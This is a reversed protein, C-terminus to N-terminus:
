HGMCFSQSKLRPELKQPKYKAKIVEMDGVQVDVEQLDKRLLLLSYWILVLTNDFVHEVHHCPSIWVRRDMPHHIQQIWLGLCEQQCYHYRLHLRCCTQLQRRCLHERSSPTCHSSHRRLHLRHYCYGLPQMLMPHGTDNSVHYRVRWDWKYEYGFAVIFNGLISILVYPIMAPLRMEPERIGRNRKTARMSIWDSLPGNTALGIFAGVLIAFNTFGISQSTWNYPPAAFNQSQTLNITLFCSASWSVVFAALEIIPYIHLKWPTWFAMLLSHAWRPHPQYFSFQSKSPTGKHLYPDMATESKSNDTTEITAQGNKEQQEAAPQDLAALQARHWKTEPFAVFALIVVLVFLAVNLWWFSRWGTHQAM